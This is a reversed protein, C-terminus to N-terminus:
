EAAVAEGAAPATTVIHHKRQAINKGVFYRTDALAYTEYRWQKYSTSLSRGGSSNEYIPLGNPVHGGEGEHKLSEPPERYDLLTVIKGKKDIQARFTAGTESRCYPPEPDDTVIRRQAAKQMEGFQGAYEEVMFPSTRGAPAAIPAPQAAQTALVAAVAAQAASAIAAQFQEESMRVDAM